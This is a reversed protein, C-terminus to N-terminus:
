DLAGDQIPSSASAAPFQLFTPTAQVDRGRATSVRSSSNLDTERSLRIDRYVWPIFDGFFREVPHRSPFAADLVRAESFQNMGEDMWAHEFENTAVIGYWFQHGAEHIVVDEPETTGEPALWRTGGTFFTPYEM